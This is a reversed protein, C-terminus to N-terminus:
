GKKRKTAHTPNYSAFPFVNRIRQRVNKPVQNSFILKIGSRNRYAKIHGDFPSKSIIEQLNHQFSPSLHGSVKVISDQKIHIKLIPRDILTLWFVVAIVAIFLVTTM